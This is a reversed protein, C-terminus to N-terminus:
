HKYASHFWKKKDEGKKKKDLLRTALFESQLTFLHSYLPKFGPRQM